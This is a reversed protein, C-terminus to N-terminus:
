RANEHGAKFAPGGGIAVAGYYLPSIILGISTRFMGNKESINSISGRLMDTLLGFDTTIKNSGLTRYGEDHADSAKWGAMVTGLWDIVKFQKEFGEPGYGNRRRNQKGENYSDQLTKPNITYSYNWSRNEYDYTGGVQGVNGGLKVGDDYSSYQ